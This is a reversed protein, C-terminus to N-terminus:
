GLAASVRGVMRLCHFMPGDGLDRPLTEELELFIKQAEHFQGMEFLIDALLQKSKFV